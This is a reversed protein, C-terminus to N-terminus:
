GFWKGLGEQKEIDIGFVSDIRRQLLELTQNMYDPLKYNNALDMTPKMYKTVSGQSITFIIKGGCKTCKGILPPRRFKENCNVCRVSSMKYQLGETSYWTGNHLHVKTVMLKKIGLDYLLYFDDNNFYVRNERFKLLTEM